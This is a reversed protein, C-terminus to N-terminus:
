DFFSIFQHQTSVDNNIISEQVYYKACEMMRQLQGFGRQIKFEVKNKLDVQEIFGKGVRCDVNIGQSERTLLMLMNGDILFRHASVGFIYINICYLYM